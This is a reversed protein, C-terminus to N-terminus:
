RGGCSLWSSECPAADSDTLLLERQVPNQHESLIRSMLDSTKINDLTCVVLRVISPLRLSPAELCGSHCSLVSFLCQYISVMTKSTIHKASTLRVSTRVLTSYASRPTVHGPTVFDEQWLLSSSSSSKCVVSESIQTLKDPKDYISAHMKLPILTMCNM